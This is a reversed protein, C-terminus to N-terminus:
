ELYEGDAYDDEAETDDAPQKEEFASEFVDDVYGCGIVTDGEEWRCSTVPTHVQDVDGGSEIGELITGIMGQYPWLGRLRITAKTRSALYRSVAGALIGALRQSDDRILRPQDGSHLLVGTGSTGVVTQPALYWIECDEAKIDLVGDANIADEIVEEMELRFDSRFAITAVMERWEYEPFYRAEAAGTWDERALKHQPQCGLVVGWDDAPVSVSVGLDEIPLYLPDEPNDHEIWVAPKMLDPEVGDANHDVAPDVSYDWGTKLPLFSETKRVLNQYAAGDPSAVLGGIADFAPSAAGGQHDWDDPAGFHQYVPEFTEDARAQDHQSATDTPTGTGAKYLTELDPDWRATLSGEYWPHVLEGKLTCCVLVPGGIVRVKGYLHEDSQEIVCKVVAADDDASFDIVNPNAPVTKGNFTYPVALLAFVEIQFGDDTPRIVWDLGRERDILARIAAAATTKGVNFPLSIEIEELAAVQGGVSWAPGGDDSDDVFHRLLYALMQGNTWTESGGFVYTGSSGKNASRNGVITGAGLGGNMDQPKPLRTEVWVTGVGEIEEETLQVSESISLKDLLRLPGYATWTQEGSPIPLLSVPDTVQGGDIERSAPGIRGSFITIPGQADLLRVRVWYGTLHLLERAALDSEWPEGVRGYVRRFRAEDIGESAAAAGGAVYELTNDVQWEDAWTQRIEVIAVPSVIPVAGTFPGAIVIETM